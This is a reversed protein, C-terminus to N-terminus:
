FLSMDIPFLRNAERRVPTYAAVGRPYGQLWRVFDAERQLFALYIDLADKQSVPAFRGQPEQTM